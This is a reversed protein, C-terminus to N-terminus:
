AALAEESPQISEEVQEVNSSEESLNLADLVKGYVRKREIKMYSDWYMDWDSSTYISRLLL